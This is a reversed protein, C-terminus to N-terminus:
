QKLEDLSVNPYKAYADKLFPETAILHTLVYFNTIAIDGSITQKMLLLSPKLTNQEVIIVVMAIVFFFIAILIQILIPVVREAVSLKTELIKSTLTANLGGKKTSNSQHQLQQQLQKAQQQQQRQQQLQLQTAQMPAKANISLSPKDLADKDDIHKTKINEMVIQLFDTQVWNQKLLKIFYNIKLIENESEKVTIRTVLMVIKEEYVTQKYLTPIICMGVLVFAVFILASSIIYLNDIAIIQDEINIQVQDVLQNQESIILEYNARAFYQSDLHKEIGEGSVVDFHKWNVMGNIFELISQYFTQSIQMEVEESFIRVDRRYGKGFSQRIELLLIETSTQLVESLGYYSVNLLDNSEELRNPHNIERNEASLEHLDQDTQYYPPIESLL